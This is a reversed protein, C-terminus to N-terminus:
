ELELLNKTIDQVMNEMFKEEGAKQCIKNTLRLAESESKGFQNEITKAIGVRNQAFNLLLTHMILTFQEFSENNQKARKRINEHLEEVEAKQRKMFQQLSESGQRDYNLEGHEEAWDKSQQSMSTDSPDLIEDDGLEFTGDKSGVDPDDGSKSSSSSSSSKKKKKKKKGGSKKADKLDDIDVM